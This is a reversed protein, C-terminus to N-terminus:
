ARTLIAKDGSPPFPSEPSGCDRVVSNLVRLLGSHQQLVGSQNLKAGMLAALSAAIEPLFGVKEPPRLPVTRARAAGTQFAECTLNALHEGVLLDCSGGFAGWPDATASRVASHLDTVLEASHMRDLLAPCQVLRDEFESALDEEGNSAESASYIARVSVLGGALPTMSCWGRGDRAPTALGACRPDLTELNRYYGRVETWNQSTASSVASRTDVVTVATHTQRAGGPTSAIVRWRDPRVRHVAVTPMSTQLQLGSRGAAEILLRKITSATARWFRTGSEQNGDIAWVVQGSSDALHLAQGVPSFYDAMRDHMQLRELVGRGCPLLLDSEWRPANESTLWLTKLGAQAILAAATLAAADYGLVICDYSDTM